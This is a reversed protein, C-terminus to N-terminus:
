QNSLERLLWTKAFRWDRNVTLPSVQLVEATEEISLGGFYRLEVVKGKREDQAFLNELADNLAIVESAQETAIVAVNELSVIQAAGGGRKETQRSRAHDVLIHRMARAAVAFFHTRNEFRKERGENLKLYAEHILATTQLTHGSPQSHMYRKAMRRLEDYVLPMLEALAEGDGGSWAELLETVDKKQSNEM